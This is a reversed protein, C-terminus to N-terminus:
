PYKEDKRAEENQFSGNSKLRPKLVLNEFQVMSFVRQENFNALQTQFGQRLFVPKAHISSRLKKSEERRASAVQKIEQVDHSTETKRM